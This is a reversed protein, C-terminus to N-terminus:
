DYAYGHRNRHELETEGAEKDVESVIRALEDALRSGRSERARRKAVSEESLDLYDMLIARAAQHVYPVDIPMGFQREALYHAFVGAAEVPAVNGGASDLVYWLARDAEKLWVFQAPPLLGRGSYKRGSDAAAIETMLDAATSRSELLMRMLATEEYAHGDLIPALTKMRDHSLIRDIRAMLGDEALIAANMDSVGLGNKEPAAATKEFLVSLDNLLAEGDNRIYGYYLSFAAALARRVPPLAACGLWPRTLQEALASRIRREMGPPAEGIALGTTIGRMLLWEEPKASSAWLPPVFPPPEAKLFLGASGAENAKRRANEAESAVRRSDIDPANLLKRVRTHRGTKWYESQKWMQMDLTYRTRLVDAPLWDKAKLGAYLLFPATLVGLCRAAYAVIEQRFEPPMSGADHTEIANAMVVAPRLIADFLPVHAGPGGITKAVGSVGQAIWAVPKVVLWAATALWINIQAQYHDVLWVLALVAIIFIVVYVIEDDHHQSAGPTPTHSM